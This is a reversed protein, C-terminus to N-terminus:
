EHPAGSFLLPQTWALFAYAVTWKLFLPIRPDITVSIGTGQTPRLLGTPTKDFM